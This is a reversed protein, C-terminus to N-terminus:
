KPAKTKQLFLNWILSIVLGIAEANEVIFSM